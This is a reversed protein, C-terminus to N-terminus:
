EASSLTSSDDPVIVVDSVGSQLCYTHIYTHIIVYGYFMAPKALAKSRVALSASGRNGRRSRRLQDDLMSNATKCDLVARCRTGGRCLTVAHWGVFSCVGRPPPNRPPM